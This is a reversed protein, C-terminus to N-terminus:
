PSRSRRTWPRASRRACASWTWGRRASMRAATRRATAARPWRCTARWRRIRCSRKMPFCCCCRSGRRRGAHLAARLQRRMSADWVAITPHHNRGKVEGRSTGSTMFVRECDAPPVCSLTADKFASIPVPPLTRWGTVRRPTVGRRQCFRRYPENCAYQLAFLRSALDDFEADTCSAQAIFALLRDVLASCQPRCPTNMARHALPNEIATPQLRRRQPPSERRDIPEYDANRANPAAVRSPLLTLLSGCLRGRCTPTPAHVAHMRTAGFPRRRQPLLQSLREARQLTQIPGCMPRVSLLSAPWRARAGTRGPMQSGPLLLPSPSAQEDTRSAHVVPWAGFSVHRKSRSHDRCRSSEKRRRSVPDLERTQIETRQCACGPAVANDRMQLARLCLTESSQM